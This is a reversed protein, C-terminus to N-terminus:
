TGERPNPGCTGTRDEVRDWFDALTTGAFSDRILDEARELVGGFLCASLCCASRGLLCGSPDTPGEIAEFVQLFSVERASRGLAVGGRPGRTTEVLGARSLRQIVKALHAESAGTIEALSRVTVIGAGPRALLVSAHLALSAAESLRVIRAMGIGGNLYLFVM